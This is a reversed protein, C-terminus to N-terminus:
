QSCQYYTDDISLVPRRATAASRSVQTPTGTACYLFAPPANASGQHVARNPMSAWQAADVGPDTSVRVENVPGLSAPARVDGNDANETDAAVTFTPLYYEYDYYYSAPTTLLGTTDYVYASRPYYYSTSPYYYYSAPYGYYYYNYPNYYSYYSYYPYRYPYVYRRRRYPFYRRGRRFQRTLNRRWPRYLARTRGGFRSRSRRSVGGRSRRPSQSRSRGSM